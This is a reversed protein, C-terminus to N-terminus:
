IWTSLTQFQASSVSFQFSLLQRSIKTEFEIQAAVGQLRQVREVELLLELHDVDAGHPLPKCGDV